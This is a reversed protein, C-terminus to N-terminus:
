EEIKYLKLYGKLPKKFPTRYTYLNSDSNEYILDKNYSNKSEKFSPNLYLLYKNSKKFKNLDNKNHIEYGLDVKEM